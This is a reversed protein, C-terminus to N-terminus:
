ATVFAANCVVDWASGVQWGEGGYQFAIVRGGDSLAVVVVSTDSTVAVTECSGMAISQLKALVDRYREKEM